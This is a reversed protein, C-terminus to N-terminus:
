NSQSDFNNSPDFILNTFHIINKSMKYNSSRNLPVQAEPDSAMLHYKSRVNSSQIPTESSTSSDTSNPSDRKASPVRIPIIPNFPIDRIHRIPHFQYINDIITQILFQENHVVIDKGQLLEDVLEQPILIPTEIGLYWCTQSLTLFYWSSSFRIKFVRQITVIYNIQSYDELNSSLVLDNITNELNIEKRFVIDDSTVEFIFNLIFQISTYITLFLSTYIYIRKYFINTPSNINQTLDYFTVLGMMFPFIQQFIFKRIYFWFKYQHIVRPVKVAM